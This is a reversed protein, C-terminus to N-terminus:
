SIAQELSFSTRIPMILSRSATHAWSAGGEFGIARAEDKVVVGVFEPDTIAPAGIADHPNSGDTLCIKTYPGAFKLQIDGSNFTFNWDLNIAFSTFAFM